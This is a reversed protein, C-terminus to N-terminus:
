ARSVAHSTRLLLRLGGPQRGVETVTWGALVVMFGVPMSWHALRAAAVRVSAGKFHMVWGVIVVLLM